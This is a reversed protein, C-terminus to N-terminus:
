SVKGYHDDCAPPSSFPPLDSLLNDRDGLQFFAALEESPEKSSTLIEKFTEMRHALMLKGLPIESNLLEDTFRKDLRAPVLLSEAYLFNKRSIRGQLLIKREIVESGQELDLFPIDQATLLSRESLKTMQIEELLYAELIKTLTGDTTLLIRQLSNLTLQNITFYPLPKQLSFIM